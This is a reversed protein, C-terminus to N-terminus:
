EAPTEETLEEEEGVFPVEDDERTDDAAPKNEDATEDEDTTEEVVPTDEAKTEEEAPTEDVPTNEDAAPEETVATDEDAATEETVSTEEDAAAEDDEEKDEVPSFRVIPSVKGEEIIGQEKVEALQEASVPATDLASEAVWALYYEGTKDKFEVHVANKTYGVAHLVVTGGYVTGLKTAKYLNPDSYIDAQPDKDEESAVTVYCTGNEDLYKQLRSRTDAPQAPTDDAATQTDATDDAATQTDAAPEDDDDELVVEDDDDQVVPASEEQQTQAPAPDDLVLEVEDAETMDASLEAFAGVDVSSCFMLLTLLLALFRRASSQSSKM